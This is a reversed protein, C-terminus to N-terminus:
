QAWRIYTKLSKPMPLQQIDRASSLTKLISIRCQYALRLQRPLRHIQTGSQGIKLSVLSGCDSWQPTVDPICSENCGICKCCISNTTAKKNTDDVHQDNSLNGVMKLNVRDLIYTSYKWCKTEESMTEIVQVALYEGDSSCSLQMSVHDTLVNQPLEVKVPDREMSSTQYNHVMISVEEDVDCPLRLAYVLTSNPTPDFALDMTVTSHSQFSKILPQKQTKPCLEVTLIVNNYLMERHLTLTNYGVSLCMMNKNADYSLGLIEVDCITGHDSMNYCFMPHDSNEHIVLLHQGIPCPLWPYQKYLWLVVVGHRRFLAREHLAYGDSILQTVNNFYQLDIFTSKRNKRSVKIRNNGELEYTRSCYCEECTSFDSMNKVIKHDEVMHDKVVPM